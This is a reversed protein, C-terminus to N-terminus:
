EKRQKGEWVIHFVLGVHGKMTYFSIKVGYIRGLEKPGKFDAPLSVQKMKRSGCSSLLLLGLIWAWCAAIFNRRTM